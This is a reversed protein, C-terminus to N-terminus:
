FNEADIKAVLRKLAKIVQDAENRSISISEVAIPTSLNEFEGKAITIEERQNLYVQLINQQLM